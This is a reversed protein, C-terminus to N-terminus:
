WHWVSSGCLIVLHSVYAWGQGPLSIQMKQVVHDLVLTVGWLVIQIHSVSSLLTSIPCCFLLYVGSPGTVLSTLLILLLPVHSLGLKCLHKM